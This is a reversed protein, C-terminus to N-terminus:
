NKKIVGKISINCYLYGRANINCKLVKGRKNRFRGYNSIEYNNSQRIEKWIESEM